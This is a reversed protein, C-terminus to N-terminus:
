WKKESPNNDVCQIKMGHKAAGRRQQTLWENKSHARWTNIQVLAFHWVSHLYLQMLSPLFCVHIVVIRTNGGCNNWHMIKEKHGVALYNELILNFLFMTSLVQATKWLLFFCSRADEL